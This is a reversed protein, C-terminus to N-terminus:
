GKAGVLRDLWQGLEQVSVFTRSLNWRTVVYMPQGRDDETVPSAVGALSCRARLSEFEKTTM